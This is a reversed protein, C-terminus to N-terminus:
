DFLGLRTPSQRKKSRPRRPKLLLLRPSPLLPLPLSRLTPSSNRSRSLRRSSLTPKPPSPWLTRSGNAVMHPAAALTPRGIALSIAAVNRVGELFRQRIDEETM